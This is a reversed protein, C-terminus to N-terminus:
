APAAAASSVTLDLARGDGGVVLTRQRGDATLSLAVQDGGPRAALAEVDGAGAWITRRWRWDVLATRRAAATLVLRDDGTFAVVSGTVHGVVDGTVLDRIASSRGDPDNEALLSGDHSVVPLAPPPGDRYDVRSLVAGTSLRVVDVESVAYRGTGDREERAAVLVDRVASCGLLTLGSGDFPVAGVRPAAPDRLDAVEVGNAGLACTVHAGDGSWAGFAPLRAVLGGGADLVDAGAGGDGVAVLAGDPSASLALAGAPPAFAGEDRGRWDVRRLTGDEPVLFTGAGGAAPPDERALTGAQPAPAAGSWAPWSLQGDEVLVGAVMVLALAGGAVLLQWGGDDMARRRRVDGIRREVRRALDPAPAARTRAFAERVLQRDDRETV